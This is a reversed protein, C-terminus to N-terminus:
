LNFANYRSWELSDTQPPPAILEKVEIVSQAEIRLESHERLVNFHYVANGFHDTYAYLQSRPNIAIQFNRLAQASESRPQMKLEMVSERVPNSYRFRTVHRISYFM